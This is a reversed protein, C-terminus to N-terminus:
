ARLKAYSARDVQVYIAKSTILALMDSVYKDAISVHEATDVSSHRDALSM